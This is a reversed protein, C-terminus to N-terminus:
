VHMCANTNSVIEVVFDEKTLGRQFDVSNLTLLSECNSEQSFYMGQQQQAHDDDDDAHLNFIDNARGGAVCTLYSHIHMYAHVYAYIYTSLYIPLYTPEPLMYHYKFFASFWVRLFHRYPTVHVYARIHTGIYMCVFM